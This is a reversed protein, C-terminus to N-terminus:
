TVKQPISPVSSWILFNSDIRHNCLSKWRSKSIWPKVWVSRSSEPDTEPLRRWVGWQGTRSNTAVDGGWEGQVRCMCLVNGRKIEFRATIGRCLAGYEVVIHEAWKGDCREEGCWRCERGCRNTSQEIIRAIIVFVRGASESGGVFRFQM